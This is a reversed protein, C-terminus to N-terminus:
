HRVRLSSATQSSQRVNERRNSDGDGDDKDDEVDCDVKSDVTRVIVVANTIMVLRAIVRTKVTLCLVARVVPATAVVILCLVVRCLSMSRNCQSVTYSESDLLVADLRRM